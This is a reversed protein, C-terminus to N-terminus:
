LQSQQYCKIKNLAALLPCGDMCLGTTWSQFVLHTKGIHLYVLILM